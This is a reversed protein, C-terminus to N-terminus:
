FADLQEAGIRKDLMKLLDMMLRRNDTQENLQYSRILNNLIRRIIAASDAKVKMGAEIEEKSATGLELADQLDMLRGGYFCDVLVKKGEPEIRALFHGPIACGEIKLGLRAGVLIYVCALSIPIGLGETIVFYLNSNQPNYYDVSNGKFKKAQFLFGALQHADPEAFEGRYEGAM